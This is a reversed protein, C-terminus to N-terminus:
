SPFILSCRLQFKSPTRPLLGSALSRVQITLALSLYADADLAADHRRSLRLLASGAALRLAASDITGSPEAEAAIDLLPVLRQVMAGM